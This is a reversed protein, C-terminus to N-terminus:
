KRVHIEGNSDSNGDTRIEVRLVPAAGEPLGKVKLTYVNRSHRGGARGEHADAALERGGALLGVRRIDVRSAGGTYIFSVRYVGDGAITGDPLKWERTIWNTPIEGSKWAAAPPTPLPGAAHIGMLLLRRQDERMRALFSDWRRKGQPTWGVEALAAARPWAKWQQDDKGWIYESWLNGQVGIVFKRMNEPIGATPDLSYARQLTVRGGIYEYPDGPLGQGYDLYAHSNPSMVVAHGQKAAAIGGGAGRWSMVAAGEPLGGELIEDWGIIHRGKSELYKAFQTVFWSQLQHSDKLGLERIRRQCKPCENWRDKPAEDGGCHIYASPFLAVVEDLVDKLFAFTKDNGACFIDKTMGWRCSPEFSGMRCALEPFAALAAVSHGPMEIEPVVNVHREAAYALLGRIQEQTYFFPGYPKGDLENRRGPKPSARRVAGREILQPYKKIEIRWAQNETLHWHLTNMKHAALADVMERFAAPGIFHRCDDVMVGRWPLRPADEIAAAPATWALGKQASKAFIEAPLLQRLTQFGYFAGAPETAEIVAGGPGTTLRYAEKGLGPVKRFLIAGAAGKEAKLSFGTARNLEAAAYAAEKLFAPDAAIKSAATLTFGPGPKMECAAPLPVLSAPASFAPSLSLAAFAAGILRKM